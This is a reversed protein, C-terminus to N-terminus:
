SRMVMCVVVMMMMVLMMMLMMQHMQLMQLMGSRNDEPFRGRGAGSPGLIACMRGARFEGNVDELIKEGSPLELCINDFSVSAVAAKKAMRVCKSVTQRTQQDPSAKASPMFHRLLDLSFEETLRMVASNKARKRQVRVWMIHYFYLGGVVLLELVMVLLLPWHRDFFEDSWRNVWSDHRSEVGSTVNGDTANNMRYSAIEVRWDAFDISSGLTYGIERRDSGKPRSCALVATRALPLQPTMAALRCRLVGEDLGAKDGVAADEKARYVNSCGAAMLSSEFAPFHLKSPKPKSLRVFSEMSCLGQRVCRFPTVDGYGWRRDEVVAEPLLVLMEVEQDIAAATVPVPVGCSQLRVDRVSILVYARPVVVLELRDFLFDSAGLCLPPGGQSTVNQRIEALSSGVQPIQLGPYPRDVITQTTLELEIGTLQLAGTAYSKTSLILGRGANSVEAPPGSDLPVTAAAASGISITAAMVRDVLATSNSRIVASITGNALNYAAVLTLDALALLPTAALPQGSPGPGLVGRLQSNREVVADLVGLTHWLETLTLLPFLASMCRLVSDMATALLPAGGNLREPYTLAGRRGQSEGPGDRSASWMSSTVEPLENPMYRVRRGQRFIHAIDGHFTSQWIGVGHGVDRHEFQRRQSSLWRPAFRREAGRAGALPRELFPQWLAPCPSPGVSVDVLAADAALEHPAIIEHRPGAPVFSRWESGPGQLATTPAEAAM